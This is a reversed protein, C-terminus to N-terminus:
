LGISTLPPLRDLNIFQEVLTKEEICLAASVYFLDNCSHLLKRPAEVQNFVCVYDLYIYINKKKKKGLRLLFRIHDLFRVQWLSIGYSRLIAFRDPM